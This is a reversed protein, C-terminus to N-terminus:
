VEEPYESETVDPVRVCVCVCVVIERQRTQAHIILPLKNGSGFLLGNEEANM